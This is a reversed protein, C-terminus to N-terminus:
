PTEEQDDFLGYQLPLTEWLRQLVALTDRCDGLSRHEQSRSIGEAEMAAQLKPWRGKRDMKLIHYLHMACIWDCDVKFATMSMENFIINKDFSANWTVAKKGDLMAMVAPAIFHWSYRGVLDSDMIGTIESVKDPIPIGPNLLSSFLVEGRMTIVSLEICRADPGVGTTETDLIVYDDMTREDFMGRLYAAYREKQEKLDTRRDTMDPQFYDTKVQRPRRTKEGGKYQVTRRRPKYQYIRVGGM